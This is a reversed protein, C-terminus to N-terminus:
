YNQALINQRTRNLKKSYIYEILQIRAKKTKDDVCFQNKALEQEYYEIAKEKEKGASASIECASDEYDKSLFNTNVRYWRM